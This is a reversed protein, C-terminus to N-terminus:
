RSSLLEVLEGRKLGTPDLNRAKAENRLKTIALQNLLFKSTNPVPSPAPEFFFGTEVLPWLPKTIGTKARFLHKSLSWYIRDELSLHQAVLLAM